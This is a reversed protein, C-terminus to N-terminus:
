VFAYYHASGLFIQPGFDNALHGPEIQAGFEDDLAEEGAQVGAGEVAKGDLEALM